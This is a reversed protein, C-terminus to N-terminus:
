SQLRTTGSQATSDFLCCSPRTCPICRSSRKTPFSRWQGPTGRYGRKLFSRINLYVGDDALQALWNDPSLSARVHEFAGLGIVSCVAYFVVAMLPLLVWGIPAVWTVQTAFMVTTGIPIAVCAVLGLSYEM